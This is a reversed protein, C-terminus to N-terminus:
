KREDELKNEKITDSSFMEPYLEQFHEITRKNIKRDYYMDDLIRIFFDAQKSTLKDDDVLINLTKSIILLGDIYKM